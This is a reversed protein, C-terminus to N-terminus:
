QGTRKWLVAPITQIMIKLDRLWSRQRIYRMDMRMWEDFSVESRGNVQWICSLGPTVDLRRRQWQECGESETCPLPRPGILTMEGKLVNWLQPLEDLSSARLFRGVRTIRPDRRIKFAPGDQENMAALEVKRKEADVVMTRFKFMVFPRGGLGARKQRFIIPGSSTLKVLAAVALFSPSLLVMAALALAIDTLRKWRPLPQLFLSDANLFVSGGLTPQSTWRDDDGDSTLSEHDRSLMAAVAALDDTAPAACGGNGSGASASQGQHGNGYQDDFSPHGNGNGGIGNGNRHAGHYEESLGDGKSWGNGQHGNGSERRPPPYTCIVSELARNELAFICRIEAVFKAAGEACAGDLLVWAGREHLYGVDDSIRARDSLTRILETIAQEEGARPLHFIILSFCGNTRDARSREREILMGLLRRSFLHRRLQTNVTVRPAGV